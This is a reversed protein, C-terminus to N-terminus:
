QLKDLIAQTKKKIRNIEKQTKQARERSSIIEDLIEAAKKENLEDEETLPVILVGEASPEIEIIRGSFGGSRDGRPRAENVTLARRIAAKGEGRNAMEVFGFGRVRGTDRDAVNAELKGEDELSFIDNLKKGTKPFSLNGVYLKISM